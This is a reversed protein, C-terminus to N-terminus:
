EASAIGLRVLFLAVGMLSFSIEVMFFSKNRMTKTDTTNVAQPGAVVGAGVRGGVVGVAPAVEVL